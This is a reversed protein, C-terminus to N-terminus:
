QGHASRQWRNRHFLRIRDHSPKRQELKWRELSRLGISTDPYAPFTVTSVEHLEVEILTRIQRGDEDEEWKDQRTVFGFSMESVDGREISRLLDNAFTTDPPKIEVYLGKADEALALTKALTRGLVRSSDHNVLARVDADLTQAFAGPQIKERFGGLNKSLTDFVAAHGVLTRTEGSKRVELDKISALRTELM